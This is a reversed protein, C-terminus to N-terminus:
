QKLTHADRLIEMFTEGATNYKQYRGTGDGGQDISLHSPATFYMGTPRVVVDHYTNSVRTLKSAVRDPFLRLLGALPKKYGERASHYTSLVVTNALGFVELAESYVQRSVTLLNSIDNSRERHYWFDKNAHATYYVGGPRYLHYFYIKDRLERPLDFLKFAGTSQSM